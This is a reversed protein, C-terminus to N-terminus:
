RLGAKKAKKEAREVSKDSVFPLDHYYGLSSGTLQMFQEWDKRTFPMLQLENLGIGRERAIDALYKVIANPRFRIVGEKDKILPQMPLKKM